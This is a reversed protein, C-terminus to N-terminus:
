NDIQLLSKQVNFMHLSLNCTMTQGSAYLLYIWLIIVTGFNICGGFFVAKFGVGALSM